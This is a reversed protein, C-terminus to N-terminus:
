YAKLLHSCASVCFRLTIESADAQYQRQLPRWARRRAIAICGCRSTLRTDSALKIVDRVTADPRQRAHMEVVFSVSKVVQDDGDLVADALGGGGTFCAKTTSM